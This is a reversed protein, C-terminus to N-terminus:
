TGSIICESYPLIWTCVGEVIFYFLLVILGEILGVDPIDQKLDYLAHNLQIFIMNIM